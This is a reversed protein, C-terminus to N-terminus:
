QFCSKRSSSSWKIIIITKKTKSTSGLIFLAKSTIFNTDFNKKILSNITYIEFSDIVTRVAFDVIEVMVALFIKLFIQFNTHTMKQLISHFAFFFKFLLPKLRTSKAHIKERLFDHFISHLEFLKWGIWFIRRVRTNPVGNQISCKQYNCCDCLPSVM